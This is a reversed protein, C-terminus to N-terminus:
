KKPAPEESAPEEVVPAGLARIKKQVDQNNPNLEAVKKYLALADSTKGRREYLVGLSWLADSYNPSMQLSLGFLQEARNLDDSKGRNFYLRGLQFILTPDNQALQAAVAMHEIAEDAKNEMEDLVSLDVYALIYDPKLKTAAEFQERAAKLDKAALKANGLSLRLTPNSKELAIARELAAVDFTNANASLARANFYMTALFDWNAVNNPSIDTAARAENVASALLSTILNLNPESKNYEINGRTIYAQALTLHYSARSANLEIAASFKQIATDLTEQKAALRLGKAYTLEGLYFRGLYTGFVVIATIVLVFSFSSVLMYQPSARLSISYQKIGIKAFLTGVSLALGLSLFFMFWHVTSFSVLFLLVASVVWISAFSIFLTFLSAAEGSIDQSIDCEPGKKRGQQESSIFQELLSSKPKGLWVFFLIGLIALLAAIFFIAGLIGHGSLIDLVTNYSRTFRTSWAFNQNFSDPRFVSFDYVFTAPGSGFLFTKISSTLNSSVIDWSIGPSLSVELPLPAVMFKPTGLFTLLLSVVLIAFVITVWSTQIKELRSIAFVLLFFMLLALIAWVSKFGIMAVIALSFLGAIMWFINTLGLIKDKKELLSGLALSVVLALFVGYLSTLGSTLNWSPAYNQLSILGFRWNIFYLASVVATGGLLLSVFKFQKLEKVNNIVLYYFLIYFTLPVFGWSLSSWDGWFSLNRDKSILSSVLTFLWFIVIPIDVASFRVDFQKKVISQGLWSLVGLIVLAYLLFQKNFDLFESTFPLFFIPILAAAAYIFFMTLNKLIKESNFM